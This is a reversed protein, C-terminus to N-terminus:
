SNFSIEVKASRYKAGATSLTESKMAKFQAAPKLSKIYDRVARARDLALKTDSKLVRPGMTYGTIEIMMGVTSHTTLWTRIESKMKTTLQSRGIGFGAFTATVPGSTVVSTTGTVNSKAAIVLAKGYTLTGKSAIVTIDYTGPTLGAPITFSFGTASNGTVAVEIGGVLLKTIGELGFGTVTVVEGSKFGSVGDVVPAPIPNIGMTIPASPAPPTPPEPTEEAPYWTFVLRDDYNVLSEPWSDENPMELHVRFEFTHSTNLDYPTNLDSNLAILFDRIVEWTATAFSGDDGQFLGPDVGFLIDDIFVSVGGEGPIDGISVTLSGGERLEDSDASIYDPDEEECPAVPAISENFFENWNSAIEIVRAFSNCDDYDLFIVSLEATSAGDFDITVRDDDNAKDIVGATAGPNNFKWILMLDPDEFQDHSYNIGNSLGWTTTDDSGLDGTIFLDMTSTVPAITGYTGPEYVELRWTLTNGIFIRKVVVDVFEGAAYSFVNRTIYSYTGAVGNVLLEDSTLHAIETAGTRGFVFGFSDFADSTYEGEADSLYGTNLCFETLEIYTNPIDIEETNDNSCNRVDNFEVEIYGDDVTSSDILNLDGPEDYYRLEFDYESNLNRGSEWVYYALQDWSIEMLTTQSVFKFSYVPDADDQPEKLFLAFASGASGNSMDVTFTEGESIQTDSVTIFGPEAPPEEEAYNAFSYIVNTFIPTANVTNYGTVNATKDVGIVVVYVLDETTLTLNNFEGTEGVAGQDPNIDHYSCGKIRFFKTVASSGDYSFSYADTTQEAEIGPALLQCDITYDIITDIVTITHIRSTGIETWIGPDQEQEVKFCIDYVGTTGTQPTGSITISPGGYAEEQAQLNEVLTLGGPLAGCGASLKLTVRSDITWDVTQGSFDLPLSVLFPTGIDATTSNTGFYYPLNEGVASAPTASYGGLALASALAAALFKKNFAKM